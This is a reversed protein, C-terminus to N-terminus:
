TGKASQKVEVYPKVLTNVAGFASVIDIYIRM